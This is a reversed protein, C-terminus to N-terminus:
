CLVRFICCCSGRVLAAFFVAVLDYLPDGTKADAFDIVSTPRWEHPGAFKEKRKAEIVAQGVPTTVDLESEEEGSSSSSGSSTEWEEETSYGGNSAGARTEMVRARTATLQKGHLIAVRPGLPIGLEKLHAEDLLSLTELTVKEQEVLLAIYKECGISTLFSSLDCTQQVKEMSSVVENRPKRDVESGLINEDTLDGHLLM